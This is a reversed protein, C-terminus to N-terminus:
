RSTEEVLAGTKEKVAAVAGAVDEKGAVVKSIEDVLADASGGFAPSSVSAYTDQPTKAVDDLFVKMDENREPYDVGQDALDRRTPLFLAGRDMAEQNEARNMWEVFYAALAPDKAERFAAMFKGGPFGGCREACPNPVAAWQFKAEKAFQSVQWNGSLYVPVAEALFIENAGKYKSGSELWFDRSMRDDRMLDALAGIAKQAKAPDLSEKGDKGILTAGFESLVTSVRHGSRDMAIAFDTGNARQVKEAAQVMEDFTWPKDAAPLPVGAKKFQDVNVFPGNMTLDSPVALLEGNAGRAATAPGALFQDAYNKGFYQSLDLLDDRFPHVDALRAVDPANGGSLRAQLSNELDDFPLIQLNVKAGTEREFKSLLSRTAQEDPGDTFYVYTLTKGKFSAPDIKTDKPASSDDASQGPNGCGTLAALCCALAAILLVFQGRGTHRV